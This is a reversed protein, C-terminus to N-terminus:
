KSFRSYCFFSDSKLASIAYKLDMKYPRFMPSTMQSPLCHHFDGPTGKIHTHPKVNYIHINLEYECLINLEYGCYVYQTNYEM